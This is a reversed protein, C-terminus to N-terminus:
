RQFIKFKREEFYKISLGTLRHGQATELQTALDYMERLRRRNHLIVFLGGSRRFSVDLAGLYIAVIVDDVVKSSVRQAKARDRL